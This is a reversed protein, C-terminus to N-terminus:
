SMINRYEKKWKSVLEGAGQFRKIPDKQFLEELELLSKAKGATENAM